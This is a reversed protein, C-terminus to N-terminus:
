VDHNAGLHRRLRTMGRDLHNRLTSASIGLMAAADAQPYGWANVLLVAQRQSESLRNLAKPLAPEFSPDSVPEPEAEPLPKRRRRAASRGVRYLYGTPNDMASVRSWHEFAYAMANAAAEAGEVPGLAAVLGRRVMPEALEYFADFGTVARVTSTQDIEAM